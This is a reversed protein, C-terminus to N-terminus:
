NEELSFSLIGTGTQEPIDSQSMCGQSSGLGLSIWDKRSRWSNRVIRQATDQPAEDYLIHCSPLMWRNSHAEVRDPTLGGIHDWDATTNLHGMLVGLIM